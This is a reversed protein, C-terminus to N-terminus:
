RKQFTLINIFTQRRKSNKKLYNKRALQGFQPSRQSWTQGFTDFICPCGTRPQWTTGLPLPLPLSYGM